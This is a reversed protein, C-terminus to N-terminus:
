QEKIGLLPKDGRMLLYNNIITLLTGMDQKAIGIKTQKTKPDIFYVWVSGHKKKKVCLINDLPIHFRRNIHILIPNSM